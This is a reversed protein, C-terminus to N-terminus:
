EPKHSWCFLDLLIKDGKSIMEREIWVDLHIM